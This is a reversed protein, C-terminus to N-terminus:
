YIMHRVSLNVNTLIQVVAIAAASTGGDSILCRIQCVSSILQLEETHRGFM